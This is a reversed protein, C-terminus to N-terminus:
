AKPKLREKEKEIFEIMKGWTGPDFGGAIEDLEEVSLEQLKSNLKECENKLTELEEQTKAM